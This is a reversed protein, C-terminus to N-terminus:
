TAKLLEMTFRPNTRNAFGDWSTGVPAGTNQVMCIETYDNLALLQITEGHYMRHNSDVSLDLFSTTLFSGNKMYIMQAACPILVMARISYWGARQVTLRTPQGADYMNDGIEAIVTDWSMITGTGGTAISQATTRHIVTFIGLALVQAELAAVSTELADVDTQLTGLVPTEQSELRRLRKTLNIVIDSSRDPRLVLDTGDPGRYSDDDPFRLGSDSM